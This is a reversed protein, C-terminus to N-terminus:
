KGIFITCFPSACLKTEGNPRLISNFEKFTMTGSKDRDLTEFLYEVDKASDPGMHKVIVRQFEKVDVVGSKDEDMDRFADKLSHYRRDIQSCFLKSIKNARAMKEFETQKSIFSSDFEKESKAKTMKSTSGQNGHMDGMSKSGVMSKEQSIAIKPLQRPIDDLIVASFLFM